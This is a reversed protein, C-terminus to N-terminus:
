WLIILNCIIIFFNDIFNKLCYWVYVSILFYFIFRLCWWQLVFYLYMIQLFHQEMIQLFHQEVKLSRTPLRNYFLLLNILFINFCSSSYLIFSCYLIVNKELIHLIIKLVEIKLIINLFALSYWLWYFNNCFLLYKKIRLRKLNSYLLIFSFTDYVYYYVKLLHPLNHSPPPTTNSGM